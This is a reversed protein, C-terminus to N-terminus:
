TAANQLFSSVGFDHQGDFLAEMKEPSQPKALLFGQADNCGCQRLYALESFREVGEGVSRLHLNHALAIISRCIAADVPSRDIDRVFSRDIKLTDVPMRKLYNLNSYRTGFDDIAILVGLEKLERLQNAFLAADELLLSETIEVELLSPALGSTLLATEVTQVFSKRKLQAISVNVAVPFALKGAAQWKQAQVCATRLVWDGIPVILGSSEATEIFKGPLMPGNPHRWRILAEAGSIAGTELDVRPQYFLHFEDRDLAVRLDKETEVRRRLKQMMGPAFFMCADRSARKAQYMALDANRLLDDASNGDRPAIAAGISITGHFNMEDIMLPKRVEALLCSAISELEAASGLNACMIAFEDGGIRAVMDQAGICNRIRESVCRLFYDGAHHGLSDNLDKFNDADLYLVGTLLGKKGSEAVTRDLADMLVGRNPLGTLADHTAQYSLADELRKRDTIDQATGRLLVLKGSADREPEGQALITRTQNGTGPMQLEVAFPKGTDLTNRVSQELVAWSEGTFFRQQEALRPAPKMLEYQYIRYMEESWTVQDQEVRWEWSGIRALRQAENLERERQRLQHNNAALIGNIDFARLSASNRVPFPVLEGSRPLKNRKQGQHLTLVFILASLTFFIAALLIFIIGVCTKVEQMPKAPPPEPANQEVHVAAVNQQGMTTLAEALRVVQWALAATLAVTVLLSLVFPLRVASRSDAAGITLSDASLYTDLHKCM